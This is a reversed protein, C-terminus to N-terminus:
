AQMDRALHQLLAREDNEFVFPLKRMRGSFSELLKQWASEQREKKRVFDKEYNPGQPNLDAPYDIWKNLWLFASQGIVEKLGHDLEISEQVPLEEPLCVLHYHCIEPDKLIEIIANSQEAMPGFRIAQAMGVPAKLLALFHGTAFTDVVLAEYPLKPGVNRPPGSTIKGLIALESLGPAVDILTRSVPNQFFLQYLKEVKLLHVAYERLCSPGSWLSVDLNPLFPTPEYGVSKLGLYDEYFSEDGLEVLLTKKGQSSLTQALGAAVASKGVGGKGTVFHIKVGLLIELRREQIMEGQMLM